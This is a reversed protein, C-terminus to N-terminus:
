ARAVDAGGDPVKISMLRAISRHELSPDAKLEVTPSFGEEL